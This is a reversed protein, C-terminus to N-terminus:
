REPTSAVGSARSASAKTKRKKEADIRRNMETKSVKMMERMASTFRAFEPNDPPTKMPKHYRPESTGARPVFSLLFSDEGCESEGQLKRSRLYKCARSYHKSFCKAYAPNIQDLLELYLSVDESSALGLRIQRPLGSAIIYLINSADEPSRHELLARLVQDSLHREIATYERVPLEL